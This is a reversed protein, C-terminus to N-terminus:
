NIAKLFFFLLVALIVFIIKLPFQAAGFAVNMVTNITKTAYDTTFSYAELAKSKNTKEDMDENFLQEDFKIRDSILMLVKKAFRGIIGGVFPIQEKLIGVLLPITVIHIIGKFVLGMVEKRNEPNVQAQVQNIDKGALELLELSYTMISLLDGKMKWTLLLLGLLIGTGLFLFLGILIYILYEIHVLDLLFFGLIFALLAFLVPRIVWSGIYEAFGLLENFSEAVKEDKYISVDIGLEDKIKQDLREVDKQTRIKM